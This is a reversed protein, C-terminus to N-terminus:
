LSSKELRAIETDKRLLEAKQQQVLNELDSIKSQLSESSSLQGAERRLIERIALIVGLKGSSSLDEIKLQLFQQKTKIEHASLFTTIASIPVQKLNHKAVLENLWPFVIVGLSSAVPTEGRVNKIEASAGRLFLFKCVEAGRVEFPAAFRLPTNLEDDVADVYFGKEDILYKVV